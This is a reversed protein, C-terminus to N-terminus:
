LKRNNIFSKDASTTSKKDPTAASTRTTKVSINTSSTKTSTKKVIDNNNSNHWQNKIKSNSSKNLTNQYELPAKLTTVVKIITTNTTTDV